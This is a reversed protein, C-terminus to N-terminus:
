NTKDILICSPHHPCSAGGPCRARASNHRSFELICHDVCFCEKCERVNFYQRVTGDPMVQEVWEAARCRHSSELQGKDSKAWAILDDPSLDPHTRKVNLVAAVQYLRYRRSGLHKIANGNYEPYDIPDGRKYEKKGPKSDQTKVTYMCDRGQTPTILGGGDVRLLMGSHSREMPPSLQHRNLICEMAAGRKAATGQDLILQLEDASLRFLDELGIATSSANKGEKTSAPRKESPRANVRSTGTANAFANAADELPRKAAPM